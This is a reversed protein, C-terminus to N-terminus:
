SKIKILHKTESLDIISRSNPTITNLQLIIKYKVNNDDFFQEAEQAANKSGALVLVSALIDAEVASKSIVSATAIDTKSPEGSIPDILHHWVKIHFVGNRKTTGSTAIAIRDQKVEYNSISKNAEAAEIGIFWNQNNQDKGGAIIDGGLSLWYGTIQSEIFDALMDLLYGKGIGGFDIATNEPIKAQENEIHIESPAVIKRHSFNLESKVNKTNPWSGKYGVRQLAPLIFPNYKGKTKLGYKKSAALLEIFDTSVKTLKGANLNFNSLESFTIFRSFRLDFEDIKHWLEAMIKELEQQNEGVLTLVAQCGLARKTQQFTYM